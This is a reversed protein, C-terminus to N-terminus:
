HWFQGLLYAMKTIALLHKIMRLRTYKCAQTGDIEMIGSSVAPHSRECISIDGGNNDLGRSKEHRM